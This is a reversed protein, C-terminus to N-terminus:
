HSHPRRPVMDVRPRAFPHCRLIRWIALLSGRLPGWTRLADVAYFSCTPQYRCTPAKNAFLWQYGRIPLILAESVM